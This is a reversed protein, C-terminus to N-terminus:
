RRQHAQSIVSDIQLASSQSFFVRVRPSLHLGKRGLRGVHRERRCHGYRQDVRRSGRKVLRIAIAATLTLATVLAQNSELM